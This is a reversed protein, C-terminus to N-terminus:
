STNTHYLAIAGAFQRLAFSSHTVPTLVFPFRLSMLCGPAVPGVALLLSVSLGICHNIFKHLPLVFYLSSPRWTNWHQYSGRVKIVTKLLKPTGPRSRIVEEAEATAAEANRARQRSLLKRFGCVCVCVSYCQSVAPM